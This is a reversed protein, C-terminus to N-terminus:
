GVQIEFLSNGLDLTANVGQDPTRNELGLTIEVSFPVINIPPHRIIESVSLAFLALMKDAYSGVAALPRNKLERAALKNLHFVTRLGSSAPRKRAQSSPASASLAERGGSASVIRLSSPL